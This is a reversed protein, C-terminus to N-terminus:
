LPVRARRVARAIARDPRVHLAVDARAAAVLDRQADPTLADDWELIEDVADCAELVPRTYRRGLFIVRADRRAKLLGCLPLTLVVDGIRDTRSVLVRLPVM